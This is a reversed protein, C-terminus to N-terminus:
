AGSSIKPALLRPHHVSPAGTFYHTNRRHESPTGVTCRRHVPTAGTLQTSAGPDEHGPASHQPSFIWKQAHLQKLLVQVREPPAGLISWYFSSFDLPHRRQPRIQSRPPVRPPACDYGTQKSPAGVSCRRDASPAGVSCRRKSASEDRWGGCISSERPCLKRRRPQWLRRRGAGFFRTRLRGTRQLLQSSKARSCYTRPM